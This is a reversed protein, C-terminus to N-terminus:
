QGSLYAKEVATTIAQLGPVPNVDGRVREPLTIRFTVSGADVHMLGQLDDARLVKVRDDRMDYLREFKAVFKQDFRTKGSVVSNYGMDSVGYARVLNMFHARRDETMRQGLADVLDRVSRGVHQGEPVWQVGLSLLFLHTEPTEDVSVGLEVQHTGQVHHTSASGATTKVEVGVQGIQFDRTSQGAGEWSDLLLDISLSTGAALAEMFYLEGALGLLDQNSLAAQELALVIVPEAERFSIARRDEDGVGKALLELCILAAVGDLHPANHLTFRNASYPAGSSTLWEQHTISERLRAHVPELPEGAIFIEIAGLPSRAIGLSEAADVWRVERQDVSKTPAAAGVLQVLDEFQMEAAKM